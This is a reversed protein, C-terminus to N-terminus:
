LPDLGEARLSDRKKRQSVRLSKIPKGPIPDRCIAFFLPPAGVKPSGPLRGLIIQRLVLLSMMHPLSCDVM